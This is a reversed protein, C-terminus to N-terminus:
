VSERWMTLVGDRRGAILREGRLASGVAVGGQGRWATVLTDVGRIQKDTLGTAGGALLWGRIVRRRLPDPLEALARAALGAGARVGPLAQAALADIMETDERLATATRALAEAVGGGLVDELLPLVELRLRTRTFRRDSNHPDQWATLGLEACAAHTAARRVGLLPRCWPPDHPRMGAISRVGSGRGLGLLVTEAQDDLTHALLVPGDASGRLAAYRASRAAAEPGGDRGVQVCLVQADVCGLAVAQQRATEAVAASGEQLGHDVILATTPRIRAAVATLALSDPGGSLAVCWPAETPFYTHAFAEVATRLQGVAGPRDM